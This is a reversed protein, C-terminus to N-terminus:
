SASASPATFRIAVITIDDSPPAGQTFHKVDEYIGQCVAAAHRQQKKMVTLYELVRPLGYFNQTSDQAETVGDTIMVLVDDSQLRLRDFTYPFDESVCLPPGGAGNLSRPPEKTRLLIPADHGANCLELEGTRVNL